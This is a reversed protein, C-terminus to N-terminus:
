PGDLVRRIQREFEEPTQGGSIVYRQNIVLTPVSNIGRRIWVDEEARVELAYAQSQLVQRAKARDLGVSEAAAILVDFDGVDAQDTFNLVFLRRKLDPQKGYEKAWALLRHADFTNYMRSTETLRMDFGVDLARAKISDQNARVDLEEMGYKARLHDTRSRGGPPMNPNLEFPHFTIEADAEDGIKDIAIGLSAVGIACWPCAVDSVVDIQLRTTM